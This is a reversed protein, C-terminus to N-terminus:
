INASMKLSLLFVLNNKALCDMGLAVISFKVYKPKFFSPIEFSNLDFKCRHFKKFLTVPLKSSLIISCKTFLLCKGSVLLM